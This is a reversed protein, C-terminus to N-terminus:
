LTNSRVVVVAERSLQWEGNEEHVITMSRGDRQPRVVAIGDM